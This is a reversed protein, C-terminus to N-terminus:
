AACRQRLAAGGTVPDARNLAREGRRLDAAEGGAAQERRFGLCGDDVVLAVHAEVDRLADDARRRPLGELGPAGGSRCVPPTTEDGTSLWALVNGMRRCIPFGRPLLPRRSSAARCRRRASAG